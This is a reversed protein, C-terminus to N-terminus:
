LKNQKEQTLTVKGTGSVALKYGDVDANNESVTYEGLELGSLTYKGDKFDQYKVSKVFNNPGTITFTADPPTAGDKTVKEITLTGLIKEYQNTITQTEKTNKQSLTVKGTGSVTLKYGDIDANNENVTYEGLELNSLTYKGNKFDKYQVSKNYGNPGTITFTASSPTTAGKSM